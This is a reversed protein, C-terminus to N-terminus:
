LGSSNFCQCRFYNIKQRTQKYGSGAGNAADSPRSMLKALSSDRKEDRWETSVIGNCGIM